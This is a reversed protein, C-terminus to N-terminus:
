PAVILEAIREALAAITRSPNVGLAEPVIAGDAVYLNPYGFVEGRHDVVGTDRTQGMNCGGLPHPTVLDQFLSWTFPVLALGGSAAALRTHMAVIDDIVRRSAAVNWDLALRRTGDPALELRLRGDAADVGQAFWPMINRFPETERLFMQIAELTVKLKFGIAPDNAKDAIFAAALNPLGGDEIWFVSGNQSGDQFNIASAITPGKTPEVDRGFHFAPTLFDGNSSWNRGLRDSVNPLSGTEDRCRLLLETSGLSGAALVVIPATESGPTRTGGAMDDYSVRYGAALPEINTVLHLPRVDAHHTREALFLYNLDLTNRAHVDCGIDCNGLHVCTGQTAGQANTRTASAAAGRAFDNAYTWQDDFTVALELPEFRDGFGLNLAAEKMLMMRATWQNAPVPKVNMFAKVRDYYPKLDQYRIEPPWGQAFTRAPAECSINAYVLSGGGVGAGQAVTMNPFRRIDLWGPRREPHDHDWMWDDTPQRPFNTKDWRRGRELVLVALGAEALRCATVAGGFGSGVVIADFAM